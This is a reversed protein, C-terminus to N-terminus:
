RTEVEEGADDDEDTAVMALIVADPLVRAGDVRMRSLGMALAGRVSIEFAERLAQKVSPESRDELAVTTEMRVVRAWAPSAVTLLMLVTALWVVMRM